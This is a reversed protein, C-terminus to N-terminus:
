KIIIMKKTSIYNNMKIRYFYVGTGLKYGDFVVSHKGISKKANLLNSIHKGGIDFVDIVVKGPKLLEFDITTEPNFPNPYNQFLKYNYPQENEEITTIFDVKSGYLRGESNEFGVLAMKRYNWYSYVVGISDIFYFPHYPRYINTYGFPLKWNDQSVLVSDLFLDIDPLGINFFDGPFAYVSDTDSWFIRYRLGNDFTAVTDFIITEPPPLYFLESPDYLSSITDGKSMNLNQLIIDSTDELQYLIGNEFRLYNIAKEIEGSGQSSNEYQWEVVSYNKNNITTDSVVREIGLISDHTVCPDGYSACGDYYRITGPELNYSINQSFCIQVLLLCFCIIQHIKM